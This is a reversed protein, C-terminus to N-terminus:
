QLCPHLLYLQIYEGTLWEGKVGQKRDWRVYGCSMEGRGDRGGLVGVRCLIRTGEVVVQRDWSTWVVACM